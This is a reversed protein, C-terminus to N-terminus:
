EPCDPSAGGMFLASVLHIVDPLDVEGGPSGDVNMMPLFVPEPGGLFLYGVLGIVDSLDVNDDGNFDGCTVDHVRILGDYVKLQTTDIRLVESQVIEISDYPPISVREWDVCVDDIYQVCRWYSTDPVTDVYTGLYEGGLGILKFFSPSSDILELRLSDVLTTDPLEYADFELYFAPQPWTGPHFLIGIPNIPDGLYLRVDTGDDAISYILQLGTWGDLRTGATEIETRLSCLDPRSLRYWLESHIIPDDYNEIYVPLLAQEAGARVNITDLRLRVIPEQAFADAIAGFALLTLVAIFLTCSRM